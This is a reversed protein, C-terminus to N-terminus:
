KSLPFRRNLLYVGALIITAVGVSSMILTGSSGSQPLDPIKTNSVQMYFCHDVFKSNQDEPDGSVRAPDLSAWGDGNKFKVAGNEVKLQSSVGEESEAQYGSPFRTETLTYTGNKLGYFYLIGQENTAADGTIKNQDSPDPGSYAQVAKGSSDTLTFVAGSLRDQTKKDVKVIQLGLLNFENEFTISFEDKKNEGAVAVHPEGVPNWTAVSSEGSSYNESSYVTATVKVAVGGSGRAESVALVVKYATDDGVYGAATQDNSLQNETYIYTYTHDVDDKTFVLKSATRAIAEALGDSNQQDGNANRFDFSYGSGWQVGSAKDASYKDVATVNFEFQNSALDAGKLDKLITFYGDYVLPAVEYSNTVTVTRDVTKGEEHEISVNVGGEERRDGDGSYEPDKFAEKDLGTEQVVFEAGTPLNIVLIEQGASITIEGDDAGDHRTGVGSGGIDRVYYEGTYPTVGDAATLKITFTQGELAEQGEAMKKQIVLRYKDLATFRNLVQIWPNTDVRLAVTGGIQNEDQVSSGEHDPDQNPDVLKTDTLDFVYDDSFGSAGTEVVKYWTSADVPTVNGVQGKTRYHEGGTFRVFQGHKIDVTGDTTFGTDVTTSFNVDTSVIYDGVYPVYTGNEKDSVTVKMTFDADVFEEANSEVQKGVTITGTPITQLNFEIKCNSDVAGRELYFFSLDHTTYDKLYWHGDRKELNESIYDEDGDYAEHLLDGIYEEKMQNQHSRGSVNNVKDVTVKGSGFNIRGDNSNHIGGMDLILVGDIYVWVDDDGSFSFIMDKGNVQGDRPMLFNDVTMKMGFHYNGQAENTGPQNFPLFYPHGSSGNSTGTNAGDYVVFSRHGNDGKVEDGDADYISAFNQSSDYTYYGTEKDYTFLYDLNEYGTIGSAKSDAGFLYGLSQGNRTTTQGTVTPYGSDDLESAVIGQTVGGGGQTWHNVWSNDNTNSNFRTDGGSFMFQNTGNGGIYNGNIEEPYDYLSISVGRDSTAVTDIPNLESSDNSYVLYVNRSGVDEWSQNGGSRYQWRVYYGSGSYRLETFTTGAATASQAVKAHSYSYGPITPAIGSMTIASNRNVNNLNSGIENGSEDICHIDIAQWWNGGWTITFTSFSSVTFEADVTADDQVVITGDTADADDAVAEVDAVTGDEAEALHHVALDEAGEPVAGKPLEFRVDVPESPEVENGDADTFFVDLALFGDYSVEAKELEDAVAQTDKESEVLEAHLEAGEPLAGEPADVTVVPLKASADADASKAAKAESKAQVKYTMGADAQTGEDTGVSVAEAQTDETAYAQQGSVSGWAALCAVLMAFGCLAFFRSRLSNAKFTRPEQKTNM